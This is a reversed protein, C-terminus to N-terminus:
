KTPLFLVLTEAFGWVACEGKLYPRCPLSRTLIVRASSKATTLQRYQKQDQTNCSAPTPTTEPTEEMKLITILRTLGHEHVYYGIYSYM